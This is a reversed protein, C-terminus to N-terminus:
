APARQPEPAGRAIRVAGIAGAISAVVLLALALAICNLSEGVGMIWVWRQDAAVSDLATLSKITGTVFGLCGAFFTILGLSIQLPVLRRDPRVAYRTSATILILGFILTPYMGWGGMHFAESM